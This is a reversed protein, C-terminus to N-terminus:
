GEDTTLLKVLPQKAPFAPPCKLVFRFFGSEYPTGAPGLLFGHIRTGDREDPVIIVGPILLAYIDMGLHWVQHLCHLSPTGVNKLVCSQKM